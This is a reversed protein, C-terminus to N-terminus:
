HFEGARTSGNVKDSKYFDLGFGSKVGTRLELIAKRKRMQIPEQAIISSLNLGGELALEDRQWQMLGQTTVLASGVSADTTADLVEIRFETGYHMATISMEHSDFTPKATQFVARTRKTDKCDTWSVRAYHDGRRLWRDSNKLIYSMESEPPFTRQFLCAKIIRLKLTGIGESWKIVDPIDNEQQHRVDVPSNQNNSDTSDVNEDITDDNDNEKEVEKVPAVISFIKSMTIKSRLGKEVAFRAASSGCPLEVDVRLQCDVCCDLKCVECQYGKRLIVSSCVACSTPRWESRIRFLHPKTKLKMNPLSESSELTDCRERTQLSGKSADNDTNSENLSTMSTDLPPFIERTVHSSARFELPQFCAEVLITPSTTMPDRDGYEVTDDLSMFSTDHIQPNKLVDKRAICWRRRYVGPHRMLPECSLNFSCIERKFMQLTTTGKMEISITPIPTEENNYSHVMSYCPIDASEKQETQQEKSPNHDSHSQNPQQEDEMLSPDSHGHGHGGGEPPIPQNDVKKLLKQDDWRACM